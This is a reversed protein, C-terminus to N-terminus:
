LKRSIKIFAGAMHFFQDSFGIHQHLSQRVNLTEVVLGDNDFVATMGHNVLSEFM